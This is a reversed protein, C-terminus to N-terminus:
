KPLWSEYAEANKEIYRDRVRGIWIRLGDYADCADLQALVTRYRMVNKYAPRNKIANHLRGTELMQRAEAAAREIDTRTDLAPQDDANEFVMLGGILLCAFTVLFGSIHKSYDM